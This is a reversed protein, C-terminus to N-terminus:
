KLINGLMFSATTRTQRENRMEDIWRKKELVTM